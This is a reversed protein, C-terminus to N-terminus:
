HRAKGCKICERKGTQGEDIGRLQALSSVSYMAGCNNYRCPTEEKVGERKIKSFDSQNRYNISIERVTSLQWPFGNKGYYTYVDTIEQFIDDLEAGGELVERIFGVVELILAEDKMDFKIGMSDIYNSLMGIIEESEAKGDYYNTTFFDALTAAFSVYDFPDESWEKCLLELYDILDDLIEETMTNERKSGSLLRADGELSKNVSITFNEDGYMVQPYDTLILSSITAAFDKGPRTLAISVRLNRLFSIIDNQYPEFISASFYLLYQDEKSLKRTIQVRRRKPLITHEQLESGFSYNAISSVEKGSM